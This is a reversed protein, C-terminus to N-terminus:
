FLFTATHLYIVEDQDDNNNVVPCSYVRKEERAAANVNVSQLMRDFFTSQTNSGELEKLEAFGEWDQLFILDGYGVFFFILCFNVFSNKKLFM